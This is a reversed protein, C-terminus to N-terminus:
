IIYAQNIFVILNIITKKTIITVFLIRSVFRKIKNENENLIIM